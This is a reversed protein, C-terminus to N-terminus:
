CPGRLIGRIPGLRTLDRDAGPGGTTASTSVHRARPERLREISRDYADRDPAGSAARSRTPDGAWEGVTYVAQGALVVLGHTPRRGRAVPPGAHSRAHRRDPHWDFPRPRRRAPRLDAGPFRDMRPGHPRDHPRAGVRRGPRLDPRGPVRANQGAHDAHLHCNAVATVDALTSGRTPWATRSAAAGGPPVDRRARRQRVRVGHRVPVRRRSPPGCLRHRRGAAWACRRIRFGSRGTARAAIIEPTQDRAVDARRSRLPRPSPSGALVRRSRVRLHTLSRACAAVCAHADLAGPTTASLAPNSGAVPQGSGCKWHPAM